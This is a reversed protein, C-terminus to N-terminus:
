APHEPPSADREGRAALLADVVSAAAEREREWRRRGDLDLATVDATPRLTSARPGFATLLHTPVAALADAALRLDLEADARGDPAVPVIATGALAIQRMVVADAPLLRRLEEFAGEGWMTQHHPNEIAWFADNPVSLIVDVDSEAAMKTLTEILAVFTSLHEVVEFCTVIRPPDGGEVLAARVRELGAAVTLDAALPTADAHGLEHAAARAADEDVDVLLAKRLPIGRLAAAAAVGNGCGLDCWVASEAILAAAIRYRTDHEVRVAPPTERTIREQWDIM